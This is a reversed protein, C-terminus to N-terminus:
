SRSRWRPPWTTRLYLFGSVPSTRVTVTGSCLTDFDTREPRNCFLATGVIEILPTPPHVFVTSGALVSKRAEGVVGVGSGTTARTMAGDMEESRESISEDPSLATPSPALTSLRWPTERSQAFASPTRSCRSVRAVRRGLNRESRERFPRRTRQRVLAALSPLPSAPFGNCRKLSDMQDGHQRATGM